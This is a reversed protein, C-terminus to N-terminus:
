VVSLEKQAVNESTLKETIHVLKEELEWDKLKVPARYRRHLEDYAELGFRSIYWRTYPHPDFEHTLNDSLCQTHCNGDPEIDWRTSYAVRSFLHGNTLNETTGCVVCRGDRTRVYKSVATDLAKVITKRSRPRPV